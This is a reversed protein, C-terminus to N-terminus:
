RVVVKIGEVIYFGKDLSIRNSGENLEVTRVIRGDIVFINVVCSKEAVIEIGSNISFLTLSSGKNVRKTEIGTTGGEKNAITLRAPANQMQSPEVPFYGRFPNLSVKDALEFVHSIDQTEGLLYGTVSTPRYVGTLSYTAGPISPTSLTASILTNKASFTISQGSLDHEPGWKSGPFAVIYPKNAEMVVSGTFGFNIVDGENGIYQKIWFDGEPDINNIFPKIEGKISAVYTEAAFPLVISIWGQVGNAQVSPMNVYSVEVATFSKPAHFPKGDVLRIVGAEEGRIINLGDIWETPIEADAGIYILTNPNSLSLSSPLVNVATLDLSTIDDSNLVVSLGAYNDSSWDGTLVLDSADTEITDGIPLGNLTPIELSPSTYSLTVINGLNGDKEPAVKLVSPITLLIADSYSESDKTPESGDVTYRLSADAVESDETGLDFILSVIQDNEYAGALPDALIVCNRFDYIKSTSKERSLPTAATIACNRIVIVAGKQVRLATGDGIFSGGNVECRCNLSNNDMLVAVAGVFQMDFTGGNIYVKSNDSNTYIGRASASAGIFTGGDVQLNYSNSLNVVRNTSSKIVGSVIQGNGASLSLAAGSSGFKDLTGGDILIRGKKSNKVLDTSGGGKVTVNSGITLTGSTDSNDTGVSILSKGNANIVVPATAILEYGSTFEINNNLIIEGGETKMLTFAEDFAALDAVPTQAGAILCTFGYVVLLFTKKFLEIQKM